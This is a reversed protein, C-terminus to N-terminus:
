KRFIDVLGAMTPQENGRLHMEMFKAVPGCDQSANENSSQEGLGDTGGTKGEESENENKDSIQEGTGDTEGTKDKKNENEIGVMTQEGLGVAGGAKDEQVDYFILSNTPFLCLCACM